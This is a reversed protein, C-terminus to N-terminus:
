NANMWREFGDYINKQWQKIKKEVPLSIVSCEKEIEKATKPDLYKGSTKSQTEGPYILAVKKAGYYEHYVYM